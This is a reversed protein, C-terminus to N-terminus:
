DWRAGIYSRAWGRRATRTGQSTTLQPYVDHSRHHLVRLACIRFIGAEAQSRHFIIEDSLEGHVSLGDPDAAIDELELFQVHVGDSILSLEASSGSACCIVGADLLTGVVREAMTGYYAAAM